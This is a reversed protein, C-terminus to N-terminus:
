TKNDNVDGLRAKMKLSKKKEMVDEYTRNVIM